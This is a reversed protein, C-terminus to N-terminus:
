VHSRVGGLKLDVHLEAHRRHIRYEGRSAVRGLRDLEPVLEARDFLALERVDDRDVAIRQVVDRAQLLLLVNLDHHLFAPDVSVAPGPFALIDDVYARTVPFDDIIESPAGIVAASPAQAGRM